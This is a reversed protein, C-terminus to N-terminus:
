AHPVTYEKLALYLWHGLLAALLPEGFVIPAQVNWILSFALMDGMYNVVESWLPISPFLLKQRVLSFILGCLLSGSSVAFSWLIVRRPWSRVVIALALAALMVTLMGGGCLIVAMPVYGLLRSWDSVGAHSWDFAFKHLLADSGFVVFFIAILGAPYLLLSLIAGCFARIFSIRIGPPVLGLNWVALGALIM